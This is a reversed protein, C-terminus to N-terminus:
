GGRDPGAIPSAAQRAGPSHSARRRDALEVADARQARALEYRKLEREAAALADGAEAIRADIAAISRALKNHRDLLPGAFVPNGAAIAREIEARLRWADARLRQALSDLEAVYRRREECQLRGLSLRNELISM